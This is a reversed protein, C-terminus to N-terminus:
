SAAQKKVNKASPSIPAGSRFCLWYITWVGLVVFALLTYLNSYVYSDAYDYFPNLRFTAGQDIAKGYVGTAVAGSIFNVMSFLGMGIGMQEKPLTGAITNSVAIQMFIQGVNGFVLFLAVLVPPLGAFFSLLLFYTVLLGGALSFLANNGRSDALRGAKRGLIAAVAAGPVMAFGILNPSLRHVDALLQPTLFPLSYSIAMVVFAITLSLSFRSNRFLAPNVFPTDAKSIRFLFLLLFVAALVAARWDSFTIALMLSAVTGALLGGGIWDLKGGDGQEDGLYKRYLPLTFVLLLPLFFLWRWHAFSVLLASVIPGLANGIALGSATIGLAWGRREAPIYRAPVIMASAPIVAAGSAQLVRAIIVMWYDQSILGILSGISFLVLGFTMLNKLKILDALKGYVVSGIAYVLLYIASVWSVQSYSLGFEEGMKPLVINFMTASMSSLILTFALIYLLKKVNM